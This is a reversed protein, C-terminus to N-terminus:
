KTELKNSETVKVLSENGIGVVNNGDFVIYRTKSLYSKDLPIKSYRGLYVWEERPTQWEDAPKLQNMQDPKGWISLVEEKTMGMKIPDTGLPHKLIESPAEFPNIEACGTISILSIFLLLAVFPREIKKNTAM